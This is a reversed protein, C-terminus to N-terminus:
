RWRRAGWGPLNTPTFRSRFAWSGPGGWSAARNPWISCARKVSFTWLPCPSTGIKRGNQYTVEYHKDGSEYYWIETGHLVYRGDDYIKAGWIMKPQGNPYTEQYHKVMGTNETVSGSGADSLIWAENMEFHQAPHNMSTILHIVGNPAQRAVAYGLTAGDCSWSEHRLAGPLEKMRWHYTICECCKGKRSCPAYTCTCQKLNKSVNCESM